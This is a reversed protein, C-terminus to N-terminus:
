KKEYGDPINFPFELKENLKTRKYELSLKAKRDAKSANVELQAPTPISDWGDYSLYRADFVTTDNLDNIWVQYPKFNKPYFKYQYVVPHKKYVRDHEIARRLKRKKLTTLYYYGSDAPSKYKEDKDFSMANGVLLDELMKYDLETDFMENIYNFGRPYYGKTEGWKVVLKVSDKTICAQAVPISAKTINLWILSDHRIKLSAKFSESMTSSEISVSLKSSFYTFKLGHKSVSDCIKNTNLFRLPKDSSLSRQGRCAYLFVVLSLAFYIWRNKNSWM